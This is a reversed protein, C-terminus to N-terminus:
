SVLFIPFVLKFIGKSPHNPGLIIGLCNFLVTFTSRYLETFIIHLYIYTVVTLSSQAYRVTQKQKNNNNNKKEIGSSRSFVSSLGVIPRLIRRGLSLSLEYFLLMKTRVIPM